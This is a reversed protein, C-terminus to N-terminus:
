ISARWLATMILKSNTAPSVSSISIYLFCSFSDKSCFCSLNVPQCTWFTYVIKTLRCIEFLPKNLGGAPTGLSIGVGDRLDEIIESCTSIEISIIRWSSFHGMFSIILAVM